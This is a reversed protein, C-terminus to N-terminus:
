CCGTAQCHTPVTARQGGKVRRADKAGLDKLTEKKLQLKNPKAGSKGEAKKKSDTM